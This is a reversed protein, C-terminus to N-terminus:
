RDTHESEDSTGTETVSYDAETQLDNLCGKEGDLSELYIKAAYDAAEFIGSLKLAAEALSGSEMYITRKAELEGKLREIESELRVNEKEQEILMELLEKRSLHKIQKDTM